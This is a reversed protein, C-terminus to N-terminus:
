ARAELASILEAAFDPRGVMGDWDAAAVGPQVRGLWGRSPAILPTVVDEGFRQRLTSRLDGIGDAIGLEVAKRGTWFEGSFLDNEPGKLRPGRREKVLAIFDEHIERQVTKLREVDDPKEPLFPDLMAKREGATYLRREIGLKEILKAFGFSGGVVGISGVISSPDCIIEDAACAVMYGGSAAVDEAFAIVPKKHEEALARIRLYILHSQVPSGGPSNILLAVARGHRLTFARELQRAVGALTLGPRLPTSFGIIGSLRVAPVVPIDGRFRRPLLPRLTDRASALLQNLHESIQQDAM